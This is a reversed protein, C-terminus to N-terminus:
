RGNGNGSFAVFNENSDVLNAVINGRYDADVSITSGAAEAPVSWSARPGAMSRMETVQNWLTQTTMEGTLSATYERDSEVM